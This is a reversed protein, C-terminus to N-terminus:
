NVDIYPNLPYGTPINNSSGGFVGSTCLTAVPTYIMASVKPMTYVKKKMIMRQKYM